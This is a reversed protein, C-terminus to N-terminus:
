QGLRIEGGPLVEEAEVDGVLFEVPEHVDSGAQRPQPRDHKAHRAMHISQPQQVHGGLALDLGDQAAM